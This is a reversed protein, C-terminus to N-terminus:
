VPSDVKRALDSWELAAAFVSDLKVYAGVLTTNVDLLLVRNLLHPQLHPAEDSVFRQHLLPSLSDTLLQHLEQQFIVVDVVIRPRPSSLGDVTVTLVAARRSGSRESVCEVLLHTKTVHMVDIRACFFAVEDVAAEDHVLTNAVFDINGTFEEAGFGTEKWGFHRGFLANLQM